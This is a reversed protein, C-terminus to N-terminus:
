DKEGFTFVPWKGSYDKKRNDMNFTSAMWQVEKDFGEIFGKVSADSGEESPLETVSKKKWDTVGDKSEWVTIGMNNGM